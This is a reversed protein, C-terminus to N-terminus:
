QEFRVVTSAEIPPLSPSAALDALGARVQYRGAAAVPGIRFERRLAEGPALDVLRAALDAPSAGTAAPSGGEATRADAGAPARGARAPPARRDAAPSGAEIRVLRVEPAGEAVALGVRHDAPNAIELVCPVEDTVRPPEEPECSLTVRLDGASRGLAGRLAPAAPPGLLALLRLAELRVAPGGDEAEERARAVGAALWASRPETHHAAYWVRWDAVAAARAEPAARPDFPFPQCTVVRLARLAIEGIAWSGDASVIRRRDDLHDLLWPVADAILHREAARLFADSVWPSPDALYPRYPELRDCGSDALARVANERVRESRHGAYISLAACRREGLRGLDRVLAPREQEYDDSALLSLIPDEEAAGGPIATVLVVLVLLLPRKM